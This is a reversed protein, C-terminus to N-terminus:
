ADTLRVIILKQELKHTSGNSKVPAHVYHFVTSLPSSFVARQSYYPPAWFFNAGSGDVCGGM